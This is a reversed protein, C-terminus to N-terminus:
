QLFKEAYPKFAEAADDATEARRVENGIEAMVGSLEEHLFAYVSEPYRPDREHMSCWDTYLQLRDGVFSPVGDRLLGEAQEESYGLTQVYRNLEHAM